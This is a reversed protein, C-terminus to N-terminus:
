DNEGKYPEENVDPVEDRSLFFRLLLVAALSSLSWIVALAGGPAGLGAIWDGALHLVGATVGAGVAFGLFFHAPFLLEAAGIAFAFILWVLPNLLM